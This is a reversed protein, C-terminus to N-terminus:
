ATASGLAVLEGAAAQGHPRLVYFSLYSLIVPLSCLLLIGLLKLRSRALDTAWVEGPKPLSVVTLDLLEDHRPQSM